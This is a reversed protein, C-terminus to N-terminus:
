EGHEDTFPADPYWTQRWLNLQDIEANIEDQMEVALAQLEPNSADVVAQGTVILMASFQGVMADIYILDPDVEATCLSALSSTRHATFIGELGSAGGRGPTASMHMEMGLAIDQDGLLPVNAADAQRIAMLRTQWDQNVEIVLDVFEVMPPHASRERIVTALEISSETSPLLADILVVDFPITTVDISAAATAEPTAANPACVDAATPGAPTAEPTQASVTAIAGLLLLGLVFPVFLRM